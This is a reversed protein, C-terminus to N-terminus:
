HRLTQQRGLNGFDTHSSLFTLVRHQQDERQVIRFILVVDLKDFVIRLDVQNRFYLTYFTHTIGVHHTLVVRHTDPQFRIHHCLVLQNRRINRSYQSFLINFRSGSLETFATVLSELIRDTVLSTQLLSFFELIDYDLCQRVTLHKTQSIHCANLQATQSIGKIIRYVTMLRYGTDHELHCTGVSGFGDVVQQIYDALSFFVQRRSQLDIHSLIGVVEKVSRDVFYDLCQDLGKDQHEDYYVYEQLIHTRGQNRGNGNRHRQNSGEKHQFQDAKTHVQQCQRGHHKGNRNHDIIGDNHDFTDMGLQVLSIFRRTLSRNIGHTFQATCQNGNCQDHHGHKDRYTEHSTRGTREVTLETNCHGDRDGERCQVRQCQRRCQTGDEQFRM